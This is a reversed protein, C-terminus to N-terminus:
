DDVHKYCTGVTAEVEVTGVVSGAFVGELRFYVKVRKLALSVSVLTEHKEVLNAVVGEM